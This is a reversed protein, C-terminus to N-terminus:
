AYCSSIAIAHSYSIRVQQSKYVRHGDRWTGNMYFHKTIVQKDGLLILPRWFAQQVFFLPFERSFKIYIHYTIKKILSHFLEKNAFIFSM